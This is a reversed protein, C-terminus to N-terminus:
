KYQNLLTELTSKIVNEYKANLSAIDKTEFYLQDILYFGGAGGSALTNSRLYCGFVFGFDFYLSDRIIDLMEGSDDDRSYKNKLAVDYYAPVVQEKSLACLAETIAGCMEVNTETVPIAFVSLDDKCHSLYNEQGDDSKPYPLMGFDADMSRLNDTYGVNKGIFLAQGASFMSCMEADTIPPKASKSNFLVSKNENVLEYIKTYWTIFRDSVMVYDYTGGDNRSCVPLNMSTVLPRFSELEWAVMGFRDNKDLVSDGNLDDSVQSVYNVLKEFTWDGGRVTDYLGTINYQGALQKNYYVAMMRDWMTLSLDGLALYTKGNITLTDVFGKVWWDGSLDLNPVLRLNLFYVSADLDTIYAMYGAVLDFIHDGSMVNDTVVKKFSEGNEWGGAAKFTTITVNYKDEVALNRKYVAENVVEATDVEAVYFENEESDRVLVTYTAGNFNGDPLSNTVSQTETNTEATSETSVATEKVSEACNTLAIVTILAFLIITSIRLKKM